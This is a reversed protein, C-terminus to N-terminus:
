GNNRKWEALPLIHNDLLVKAETYLSQAKQDNSMLGDFFTAYTVFNLDIIDNRIRDPNLNKPSGRRIWDFFHLHQLLAIRYLFTNPWEHDPPWRHACPHLEFFETAMKATFAFLKEISSLAYAEDRRIKKLESESFNKQLLSYDLAIDATDAAIGELHTRAIARKSEIDQRYTDDGSVYRNVLVCYDQFQRSQRWDVFRRRLGKRRGRLGCIVKTGRLTLVQAPFRSLVSFSERLAEKSDPRYTEMGAYDTLVAFNHRGGALYEALEDSQMCNVDVVFCRASRM